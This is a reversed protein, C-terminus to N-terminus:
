IHIVESDNNLSRDAAELIRTVIISDELTPAWSAESDETSFCTLFYEISRFGYNARWGLIGEGPDPVRFFDPNPTIRRGESFIELGRFGQDSKIKLGPAELDYSQHTMSPSSSDDIWGALHTSVFTESNPYEWAIKTTITDLIGSLMLHENATGLTATSQVTRPSANVFSSLLHIYHCGLYHNINFTPDAILTDKYIDLMDIRQTMQSSFSILSTGTVLRRIELNIPDFLKHFDIYVRGSGAKELAILEHLEDLKIVAPKVVFSVVNLQMLTSLAQYHLYNPLAVFAM